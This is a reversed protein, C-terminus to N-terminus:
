EAVTPVTADPPQGFLRNNDTLDYGPQTEKLLKELIGIFNHIPVASNIQGQDDQGVGAASNVAVITLKKYGVISLPAGSDGNVIQCRHALLEGGTFYGNLTCKQDISIAHARDRPYGALVFKSKKWDLTRPDAWGLYGTKRGIPEKLVILAWDHPLNDGHSWKEGDFNPSQIYREAISHAQYTDRQWGAM